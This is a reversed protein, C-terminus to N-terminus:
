HTHNSTESVSEDYLSVLICPLENALPMLINMPIKQRPPTGNVRSCYMVFVLRTIFLLLRLQSRTSYNVCISVYGGAGEFEQRALLMRVELCVSADTRRM